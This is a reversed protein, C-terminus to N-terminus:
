QRLIIGFGGGAGVKTANTISGVQLFDGSEATSLPQGLQGESNIGAAWVSGTTKIAYTFSISSSINALGNGNCSVSMWDTDTGAQVPATISASGTSGNGLRGNLQNGFGWLTGTTKIAM